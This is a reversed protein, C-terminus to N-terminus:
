NLAIIVTSLKVNAHAGVAAQPNNIILNRAALALERANRGDFGRRRHDHGGHVASLGGHSHGIERKINHLISSGIGKDNPVRLSM